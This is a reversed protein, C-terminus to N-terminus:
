VLYRVYFGVIKMISDNAAIITGIMHIIAAFSLVICQDLLMATAATIKRTATHRGMTMPAVVCYLHLM